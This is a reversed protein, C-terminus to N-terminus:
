KFGCQSTYEAMMTMEKSWARDFAKIQTHDVIRRMSAQKISLSAHSDDAHGRGKLRHQSTCRDVFGESCGCAPIPGDVWTM